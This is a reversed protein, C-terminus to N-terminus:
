KDELTLLFLAKIIKRLNADPVKNDIYAFLEAPTKTKIDTILADTKLAKNRKEKLTTAKHSSRM